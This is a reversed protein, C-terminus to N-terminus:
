AACPALSPVPPLRSISPGPRIDLPNIMTVSSRTVRCQRIPLLSTPARPTHTPNFPMGTPVITHILIHTQYRTPTGSWTMMHTTILTSSTHLPALNTIAAEVLDHSILNLTRLKANSKSHRQPLVLTGSIHVLTVLLRMLHLMAPLTPQTLCDTIPSWPALDPFSFMRTSIIPTNLILPNFLITYIHLHLDVSTLPTTHLQITHNLALTQNM